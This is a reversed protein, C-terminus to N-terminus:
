IIRSRHVPSPVGPMTLWMAPSVAAAPAAAAAAAAAVVIACLLLSLLLLLQESLLARTIPRITSASSKPMNVAQM